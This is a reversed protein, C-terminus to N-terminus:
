HGHDHQTRRPTTPPPAAPSPWSCRTSRPAASRSTRWRSQPTTSRACSSRCSSRRRGARRHLVPADRPRHGARGPRARRAGRRRAADDARRRHAARDHRRRGAVQARGAHGARHRARRRHHRHAVALHDAEDLYQTTLVIDTGARGMARIADWVENRSGPDLGTTPEDLLLLRPSGVLSAGLDLRRRMGGSYTKVRRDAAEVCTWRSSSGRRREAQGGPGVPRLPPRGHRPERARDDDGRRRGVPRGPRDHPAGGDPRPRRRARRGAAHRPRARDAHGGHPHVDDERRRQARPHGGTRGAAPHPDPGALAQVKGFKKTLGDAEILAHM